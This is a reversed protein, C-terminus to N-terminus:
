GIDKRWDMGDFRASELARYAKSRASEADAGYASVAFTRGGSTFFNGDQLRIGAAFLKVGPSLEGGDPAAGNVTVRDGKRYPGPYGGAVAVPACVAGHKWVLRNEALSRDLIAACVDAFDSDLLPLIAQTEPDGLRVNYELLHCNEERVMLGFFIFGRYDVNEAKLGKLTPELISAHFDARAAETFDPVPAIAGMGGTNPGMDNDFRRKHDRAAIFPAIVGEGNQVSVAALISVEKGQLFDEIVVTRGAEGIVGDKMFSRLCAEAETFCSAIVVGKGAALGDAKIVIPRKAHSFHTKVHRLADEFGAGSASVADAAFKRGAATRVGYKAMFAKSFAKSAELRAARKDPGVIALSRSHFAAVIGAALPAEPGVVSFAVGAKEAFDALIMHGAETEPDVDALVNECKKELATGGNGPAVFVADVKPSMALKWAIAHERGGSGIVLAKM